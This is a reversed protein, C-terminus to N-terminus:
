SKCTSDIRSMKRYCPSGRTNMQLRAANVSHIFWAARSNIDRLNVQDDGSSMWLVSQWKLDHLHLGPTM